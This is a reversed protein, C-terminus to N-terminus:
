NEENYNWKDWLLRKLISDGVSEIIKECAQKEKESINKKDMNIIDNLKKTAYAGITDDMFFNSSFMGGINGAFSSIKTEVDM